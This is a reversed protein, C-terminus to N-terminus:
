SSLESCKIKNQKSNIRYKRISLEKNRYISNAKLFVPQVKKKENKKKKKICPFNQYIEM